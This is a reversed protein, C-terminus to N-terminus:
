KYDKLFNQCDIVTVLTDLRAVPGLTALGEQGEDQAFTTAVPMPESIGTSEILLYDFRKEAALRGVNQILDPRLTCCICGNQMEVIKDKGEVLKSESKILTADINVEAMDNVIVALRM